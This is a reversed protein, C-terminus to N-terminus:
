RYGTLRGDRMEGDKGDSPSLMGANKIAVDNFDTEGVKFLAWGDESKLRDNDYWNYYRPFDGSAQLQHYYDGVIVCWHCIPNPPESTDGVNSKGFLASRLWNIKSDLNVGGVSRYGIKVVRTTDNINPPASPIRTVNPYKHGM